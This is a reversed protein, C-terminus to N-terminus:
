RTSQFDNKADAELRKKTSDISHGRAAEFREVADDLPIGLESCMFSVIMYGTRNVGHLCHVGVLM